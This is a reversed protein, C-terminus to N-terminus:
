VIVPEPQFGTVPCVGEQVGTCGALLLSLLFLALLEPVLADRMQM